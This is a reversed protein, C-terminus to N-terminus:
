IEQCSTSNMNFISPNSIGRRVEYFFSGSLITRGKKVLSLYPLCGPAGDQDVTVRTVVQRHEYRFPGQLHVLSYRVRGDLFMEGAFEAQEPVRCYDQVMDLPRWMCMESNVMYMKRADIDTIFYLDSPNLISTQYVMRLDCDVAVFRDDEIYYNSELRYGEYKRPFTCESKNFSNTMDPIVSFLLTLFLINRRPSRSASVM